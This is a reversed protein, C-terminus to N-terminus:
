SSKQRVGLMATDTVVRVRRRGGGRSFEPAKPPALAPMPGAGLLSVSMMARAAFVLDLAWLSLAAFDARWARVTPGAM